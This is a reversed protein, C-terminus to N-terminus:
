LMIDLQVSIRNDLNGTIENNGSSLTTESPKYTESYKFSLALTKNFKYRAVVYWRIGDGFMPLNTMVGILDNEFEYVASNFSDTKFFIIRGYLVISKLPTYRVDQFILYGQEKQNAASLRFQNIEARSRLRIKNSVVQNVELRFSQRLRKTMQRLDNIIQPVDKKEYKFRFKTEVRSFPKSTLEALIEDGDASSVNSSTRFPFKFQDYYFNVLGLETRWRFGTYFGTENSTAGSREGFGSGRYNTYNGPYNRFATILSFNKSVSFQIGNISAVSTQNYAFEGFINLNSYVADYFASYYTFSNGMLGFVSSSQVPHSLEATYGLLGIQVNYPLRYQVAGGYMKEESKNKRSIETETRHYGDLPRSILFGSVEDISADFKNQSYFATLTLDDVKVSAASGRFFNVETSSTYARLGRARKKVPYIADTGKSLPYLSWLALGQGFELLYDGAAFSNLLGIDSAYIHYSIFDTYSKEGPDKDTLVGAQFNNSYKIMMRNYSKLKTGIFNNQIFGRRTQLDNTARSRFYFRANSLDPFQVNESPKQLIQALPKKQVAIFPIIKSVVERSLQRIAYLEQVSFFSGYKNRHELILNASYADVFPLRLLAPLDATNIDVPNELLYEFRDFLEANDSEETAEEIIQELLDETEFYTTDTQACLQSATLLIIILTIRM